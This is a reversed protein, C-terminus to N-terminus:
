FVCANTNSVFTLVSVGDYGLRKRLMRELVQAYREEDPRGLSTGATISDGLCLVQM